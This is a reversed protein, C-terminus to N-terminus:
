LKAYAAAAKEVMADIDPDKKEERLTLTTQKNVYVTRLPITKMGEASYDRGIRAAEVSVFECVSIQLMPTNNSGIARAGLCYRAGFPSGLHQKRDVV